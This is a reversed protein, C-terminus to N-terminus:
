DVESRLKSRTNTGAVSNPNLRQDAQFNLISRRMRFGRVTDPTRLEYGLLSLRRQQGKIQTILELPTIKKVTYETGFIHLTVTKTDDFPVTVLGADGIDRNTVVDTGDHKVTYKVTKAQGNEVGSAADKGPWRQFYVDVHGSRDFTSFSISGLFERIATVIASM